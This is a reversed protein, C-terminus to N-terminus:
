QDPTQKQKKARRAIETKVGTLFETNTKLQKDTKYWTFCVISGLIILVLNMADLGDFFIFVVGTSIAFAGLLGVLIGIKGSWVSKAHKLKWGEIEDQTTALKEDTWKKLSM